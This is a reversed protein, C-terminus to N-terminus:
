VNSYPFLINATDILQKLGFKTVVTTSLFLACIQHNFQVSILRSNSGTCNVKLGRKDLTLHKEQVYIRIYTYVYM